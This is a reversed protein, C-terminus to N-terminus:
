DVDPTMFPAELLGLKEQAVNGKMPDIMIVGNEGREDIEYIFGTHHHGNLFVYDVCGAITPIDHASTSTTWSGVDNRSM